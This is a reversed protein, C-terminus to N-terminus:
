KGRINNSKVAILCRKGCQVNFGKNEAFWHSQCAWQLNPCLLKTTNHAPEVNSSASVVRWWSDAPARDFDALLLRWFQNREGVPRNFKPKMSLSFKSSHEDYRGRPTEWHTRQSMLGSAIWCHRLGSCICIFPCCYSFWRVCGRHTRDTGLCSHMSRSQYWHQSEICFVFFNEVGM